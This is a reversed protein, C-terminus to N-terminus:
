QIVILPGKSHSISTTGVIPPPVNKRKLLDVLKNAVERSSALVEGVSLTIPNNLVQAIVQKEGVQTSLESKRKLSMPHPENSKPPVYPEEPYNKKKSPKKRKEVDEMEVDENTFRKAQVNFPIPNLQRIPVQPNSDKQKQTEVPVPSAQTRKQM